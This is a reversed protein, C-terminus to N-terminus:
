DRGDDGVGGADDEAPVPNAKPAGAVDVGAAEALASGALGDGNAPNEKPLEPAALLLPKLKEATCGMPPLGM